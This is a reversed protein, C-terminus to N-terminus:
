SEDCAICVRTRRRRERDEVLEVLERRGERRRGRPTCPGLDTCWRGTRRPRASRRDDVRDRTLEAALRDDDDRARNDRTPARDDVCGHLTPLERADRM